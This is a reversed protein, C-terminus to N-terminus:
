AAASGALFGRLLAAVEDPADIPSIHRGPVPAFQGNPILLAAAAQSELPYLSDAIGSIMLTPVTLHQLRGRLPVGRLIVSRVAAALKRRDAKALMAHFRASYAQNRRLAGPDFFSRAVGDRFFKLGIMRRAGFAIMRDGFGPRTGDIDMPTNMLILAEVRDPAALAVEAATLGGWSVGGVVARRLGLADMVALMARGAEAGSFERGTGPSKGHGPGDVLVFTATDALNHALADFIHSDTLISPWLVINGPGHGAVRASLAGLPTPVMRIETGEMAPFSHMTMAAQQIHDNIVYGTKYGIYITIVADHM